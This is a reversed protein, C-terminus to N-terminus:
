ISNLIEFLEQQADEELWRDALWTAGKAANKQHAHYTKYIDLISKKVDDIQGSEESNESHPLKIVNYYKSDLVDDNTGSSNILTPIGLYLSELAKFPFELSNNFHIYCHVNKFWTSLTRFNPKASNTQIIGAYKKKDIGTSLSPEAFHIKLRINRIETASLAKCANLVYELYPLTTNDVFYGLNFTPSDIEEYFNRNLRLFGPHVIFVPINIGSINFQDKLYKNTVVCCRFDKNITNVMTNSLVEGGSFFVLRDPHQSTHVSAPIENVFVVIKHKFGVKQLRKVPHLVYLDEKGPPIIVHLKHPRYDQKQLIRDINATVSSIESASLKRTINPTQHGARNGWRWTGQHLHAAYNGFHCAIQSHHPILCRRDNNKLLVMDPYANKYKAYLNSLLGPGTSELIDNETKIEMFSFRIADKLYKLWFPHGPAGGFMYNAVRVPEKLGIQNCESRSLTKEESLILEFRRLEDLPKLCLIDMDLYFGGFLYVLIVRIIDAKQVTHSYNDYVTKIFSIQESIIKNVDDENYIIIDWKPHIKKIRDICKVFAEPYRQKKDLFVL